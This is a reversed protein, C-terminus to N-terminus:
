FVLNLQLFVVTPADYRKPKDLLGEASLVVRVHDGIDANLGGAVRVATDEQQEVDPDFVEAMVAPVLVLSDGIKLRYSAIAHAGYLSHGLGNNIIVLFDGDTGANDGYAGEIQIEFDALRWRLDAGVLNKTRTVVQYDPDSVDGLQEHHRKHCGSVALVLGEIIRIQFRGVYDRHYEDDDLLNNFAGLYYRLKVPGEWVGSVMAGIDRGGYGGYYTDRVAHRDLLGREPIVLDFPSSMKLRSFPKKFQGASIRLLDHLKLRAYVDKTHVGLDTAPAQSARPQSLGFTPQRGEAADVEVVFRLWDAPQWRVDVRARRLLFLDTWEDSTPEQELGWRMQMRGRLRLEDTVDVARAPTQALIIGLCVVGGHWPALYTKM